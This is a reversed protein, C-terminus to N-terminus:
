VERKSAASGLLSGWGELGAPRRTPFDPAAPTGSLRLPLSPGRLGWGRRWGSPGRGPNSPSALGEWKRDLRGDGGGAEEGAPGGLGPCAYLLPRRQSSIPARGALKQLAELQRSGLAGSAVPPRPLWPCGRRLVREWRRDGAGAELSACLFHSVWTACRTHSLQSM